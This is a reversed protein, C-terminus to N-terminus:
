VNELWADLNSTRVVQLTPDEVLDKGSLPLSLLCGSDAAMLLSPTLVVSAQPNTWTLLLM